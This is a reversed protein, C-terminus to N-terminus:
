IAGEKQKQKVQKLTREVCETLEDTSSDEINMWVCYIHKLIEPLKLLQNILYLDMTEVIEVMAEYIRIMTDIEYAAHYVEEVKQNLKEQKFRQLEDNLKQYLIRKMFEKM